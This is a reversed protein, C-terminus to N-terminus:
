LTLPTCLIRGACPDPAPDPPPPPPDNNIVNVSAGGAITQAGGPQVNRVVIAYTGTYMYFYRWTHSGLDTTTASGVLEQAPRIPRHPGVYSDVGLCLSGVRSNSVIGRM